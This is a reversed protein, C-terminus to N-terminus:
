CFKEIILTKHVLEIKTNTWSIRSEIQYGSFEHMLSFIKYRILYYFMQWTYDAKLPLCEIVQFHCHITKFVAYVVQYCHIWLSMVLCRPWLLYIVCSFSPFISVFIDFPCYKFQLDPFSLFLFEEFPFLTISVNIIYWQQHFNLCMWFYFWFM